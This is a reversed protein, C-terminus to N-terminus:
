AGEEEGASGILEASAEGGLIVNDILRTRGVRAAVALLAPEGGGTWPSLQGPDRIEVYDPVVLPEAELSERVLAVLRRGDREGREWATRAALLGRSLSRAARREEADLYRNRSSMAVGDPERIIPGIVIRGPLHLDAALRRIVAVQQADKQGFVSVDPRVINLLKAVVLAVGDFHGPRTKGCMPESLREVRVKTAFGEPYMEAQSPLFVLDVGVSQALRSDEEPVRPYTSFDEGPGFQEPNVYISLVVYDAHRHALRVLSLHGEHLAGMTPVFGITRGAQRARDVAARVGDVTAAREV